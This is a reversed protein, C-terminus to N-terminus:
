WGTSGILEGRPLNDMLEGRRLSQRRTAITTPARKAADTGTPQPPLPEVPVVAPEVVAAAGTVLVPADEVPAEVPAEPFVAADGACLPAVPADAEVECAADGADPPRRSRRNAPWPFPRNPVIATGARLRSTHFARLALIWIKVDLPNMSTFLREALPM